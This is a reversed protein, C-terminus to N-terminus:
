GLCFMKCDDWVPIWPWYRPPFGCACTGLGLHVCAGLPIGPTFSVLLFRQPAGPMPVGHPQFAGPCVPSDARKFLKQEHRALMGAGFSPYSPGPHGQDPSGPPEPALAPPLDRPDTGPDPGCAQTDASRMKGGLVASCFCRERCGPRNLAAHSFGVAPVPQLREWLPSPAPAM